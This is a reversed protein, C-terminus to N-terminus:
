DPKVYSNKELYIGVICSADCSDNIRGFTEGEHYIGNNNKYLYAVIKHCEVLNQVCQEDNLGFDGWVTLHTANQPNKFYKDVKIIVYPNTDNTFVIIDGEVIVDHMQFLEIKSYGSDNQYKNSKMTGLNIILIIGVSVGVILAAHWYKM